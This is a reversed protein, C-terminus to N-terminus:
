GDEEIGMAAEDAERTEELLAEVEPNGGVTTDYVPERDYPDPRIPEAAGFGCLVNAHYRATAAPLNLDQGLQSLRLPEGSDIIARLMRRRVPHGVALIAEIRRGEDAM